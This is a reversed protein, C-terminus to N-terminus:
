SAKNMTRVLRQVRRTYLRNDSLISVKELEVTRHPHRDCAMRYATEGDDMGDFAPSREVITGGFSVTVQWAM